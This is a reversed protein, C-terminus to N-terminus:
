PTFFYRVRTGDCYPGIRAGLRAGASRNESSPVYKVDAKVTDRLAAAPAEDRDYGPKTPIGRLLKDRRSDAGERNIRLTRPYGLKWSQKIHAVINPYRSRSFTVAIPHRPTTCDTTRAKHTSSARDAAETLPGKADRLSKTIERSAPGSSDGLNQLLEGGGGGIVILVVILGLLKLM